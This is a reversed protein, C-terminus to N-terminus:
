WSAKKAKCGHGGGDGIKAEFSLGDTHQDYWKRTGYEGQNWFFISLHYTKM